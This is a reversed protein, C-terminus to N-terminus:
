LFWSAIRIVTPVYKIAKRVIRGLGVSQLEDCTVALQGTIQDLTVTGLCQKVVGNEKFDCQEPPQQTRRPCVTEKVM